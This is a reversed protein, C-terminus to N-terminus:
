RVLRCLRQNIIFNVQINKNKNFYNYIIPYCFLFYLTFLFTNCIVQYFKSFNDFDLFPENSDKIDVEIKSTKTSSLDASTNKASM